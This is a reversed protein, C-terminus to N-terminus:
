AKTERQRATSLVPVALVDKTPGSGTIRVRSETEAANWTNPGRDTKSREVGACRGHAEGM